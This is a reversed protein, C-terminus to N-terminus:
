CGNTSTSSPHAPFKPPHTHAPSLTSTFRILTIPNWKRSWATSSHAKMPQASRQRRHNTETLTRLRVPKLKRAARVSKNRERLILMCGSTREGSQHHDTPQPPTIVTADTGGAVVNSTRSAPPPLDTLIVSNRKFSRRDPNQGCTLLKCAEVCAGAHVCARM